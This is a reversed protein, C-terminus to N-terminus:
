TIDKVQYNYFSKSYTDLAVKLPVSVCQCTAKQLNSVCCICFFSFQLNITQLISYM